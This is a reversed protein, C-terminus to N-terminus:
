ISVCGYTDGPKFRAARRDARMDVQNGDSPAWLTSDSMPTERAAKGVDSGIAFRYDSGNATPIREGAPVRASQSGSPYSGSNGRSDSGPHSPDPKAPLDSSPLSGPVQYVFEAVGTPKLHRPPLTSCVHVRQHEVDPRQAARLTRAAVKPNYAPVRRASMPGKHKNPLTHSEGRRPFVGHKDTMLAAMGPSAGSDRPHLQSSCVLWPALM